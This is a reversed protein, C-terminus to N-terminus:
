GILSEPSATLPGGADGTNAIGAPEILTAVTKPKM